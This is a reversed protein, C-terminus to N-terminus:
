RFWTLSFLFYHYKFHKRIHKQMMANFCARKDKENECGPFIPVEEITVWNVEPEDIMEIVDIDEYALIETDTDAETSLVATEEIVADDEEIKIQPTLVQKIKPKEIEFIKFLEEKPLEDPNSLAATYTNPKEYTKWELAVFALLMVLVLGFAFYLGSKKNIDKQPNKKLKM